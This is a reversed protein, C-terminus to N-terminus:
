CKVSSQVDLCLNSVQDLAILFVAVISASALIILRLGHPYQSDDFDLDDTQPTTNAGDQSLKENPPYPAPPQSTTTNELAMTQQPETTAM